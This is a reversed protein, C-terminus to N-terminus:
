FPSGLAESSLTDSSYDNKNNTKNINNEVSKLTEDIDVIKVPSTTDYGGYEYGCFEM